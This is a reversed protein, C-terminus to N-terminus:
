FLSATTLILTTVFQILLGQRFTIIKKTMTHSKAHLLEYSDLGPIRYKWGPVKFFRRLVWVVDPLSAAFVALLINFYNTQTAAFFIYFLTFVCTSVGDMFGIRLQLQKESLGVKEDGHPVADLAFHSLLALFFLLIPNSIRSALLFGASGHATLFM